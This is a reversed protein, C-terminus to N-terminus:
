AKIRELLAISEVHATHPFMDLVGVKRLRYGQQHVLEGLDRAFTAPNCSVYVIRKPSLADIQAVVNQAGSRPPDILLADITQQTWPQTRFDEFLNCAYFQTNDIHNHAANKKARAVMAEDGEVGIVTKAHRALPLTFNGLGCFLDLVTEDPQLNLLELALDILQENIPKNVQIFDAANFLIDIQHKELRYQQQELTADSNLRHITQTNGPQLYFIVPHKEEFQQFQQHDEETLPALHRIILLTNKDDISVEIQAIKDPISLTSILERLALIRDGLHAALIKCISMDTLFRGGTERFGVLPHGKKPVFRVGLRAKQRYGETAATIPPLIEDPVVNGMHQLLDLMVTQKHTIQFSPSMHQLACAGCVTFHPCVPTIRDPHPNNIVEIAAGEDYQQHTKTYNFRVTEGPLGYAIFLTKGELKAVGRGDHSLTEITAQFDGAPPRKRTRKGM